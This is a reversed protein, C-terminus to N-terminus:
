CSFLTCCNCVKLLYCLVMREVLRVEERVIQVVPAPPPLLKQIEAQKLKEALSTPGGWGWGTAGNSAAPTSAPAVQEPVAVPQQAPTQNQVPAAPAAPRSTSSGRGSPAGAGRGSVRDGRGGSGQGRGGAPPM